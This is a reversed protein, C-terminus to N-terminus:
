KENKLFKLISFVKSYSKEIRFYPTQVTGFQCYSGAVNEIMSGEFDFSQTKDAVYKIAEWFMKTSAGDNKYISNIAYLLAYASNQDWVTFIASHMTKNKKLAIIKGQKRAIAANYISMFLKQSYKIKENKTELCNKHFYFFDEASISFDVILNDNNKKIHRQKASSFSKFVVDLNSLDKIQCTYRTTQKFNKWYFPQWNTFSQHFNQSYFDMKLNDLQSILNEIAKKEFSYRKHLKQNEPYDLWVGNYQTLPPQAVIKFGMKKCFCYPLAGLTKGNKEYFLCDWDFNEVCVADLWWAQMFLPIDAHQSCFFHYKEKNAM